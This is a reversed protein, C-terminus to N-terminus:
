VLMVALPALALLAQAAVDAGVLAPFLMASLAASRGYALMAADPALALLAQPRADAGVLAALPLASL